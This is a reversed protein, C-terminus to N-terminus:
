RRDVKPAPEAPVAPSPPPRLWTRIAANEPIDPLPDGPRWSPEQRLTRLLYATGATFAAATAAVAALVTTM